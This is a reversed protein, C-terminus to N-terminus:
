KGFKQELKAMDRAQRAIARASSGGGDSSDSESGESSDDSNGEGSDSDIGALAKGYDVVPEPGDDEEEVPDKAQDFQFEGNAIERM